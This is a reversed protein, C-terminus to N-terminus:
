KSNELLDPNQHINGIIKGAKILEASLYHSTGDKDLRYLFGRCRISDWRIEWIGQIKKFKELDGFYADTGNKDKLGTDQGVTEPIVEVFNTIVDGFITGFDSITRRLLAADSQVIFHKNEVEAYWGYLFDKGNIPIGRYPRM